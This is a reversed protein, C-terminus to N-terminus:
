KFPIACPFNRVYAFSRSIARAFTNRKDRGAKRVSEPMSGAPTSSPTRSAPVSRYRQRTPPLLYFLFFLSFTIYAFACKCTLSQLPFAWLKPSSKYRFARGNAPVGM